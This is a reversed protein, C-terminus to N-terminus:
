WLRPSFASRAPPSSRWCTAQLSRAGFFGAGYAATAAGIQRGAFVWGFVIGARERGFGKQARRGRM